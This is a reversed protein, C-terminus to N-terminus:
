LMNGRLPPPLDLAELQANIITFPDAGNSMGAVALVDLPITFGPKGYGNMIAVAEEQTIISEPTRLVVPLTRDSIDDLLEKYRRNAKELAPLNNGNLNPFESGGGAQNPKRYWLSNPDRAGNKVEDALQMGITSAATNFDLGGAVALDVRKRYEARMRGQLFVSAPTNPKNSGFSTVGNAITKFSDSQDKFTGTTYKKQQEVFRASLVRAAEPDIGSLADVAEQLHSIEEENIHEHENKQTYFFWPHDKRKKREKWFM